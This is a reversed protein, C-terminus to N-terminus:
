FPSSIVKHNFSVISFDALLFLEVQKEKGELSSHDKQFYSFAEKVLIDLDVQDSFELEPNRELLISVVM